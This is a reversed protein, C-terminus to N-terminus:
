MENGFAMRRIGVAYPVIFSGTIRLPLTGQVLEGSKQGKILHDTIPLYLHFRNCVSGTFLYEKLIHLYHYLM